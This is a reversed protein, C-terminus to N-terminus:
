FIRCSSIMNKRLHVKFGKGIPLLGKPLGKLKEYKGSTDAEIGKALRKITQYLSETGNEHYNSGCFHCCFIRMVEVLHRTGYGAALILVNM